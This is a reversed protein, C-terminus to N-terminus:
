KIIVLIMNASGGRIAMLKNIQVWYQLLKLPMILVCSISAGSVTTSLVKKNWQMRKMCM